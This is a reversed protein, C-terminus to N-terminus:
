KVQIADGKVYGKHKLLVYGEVKAGLHETYVRTITEFSDGSSSFAGFYNSEGNPVLDVPISERKSEVPKYTGDIEVKNMDSDEFNYEM